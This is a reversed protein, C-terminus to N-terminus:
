APTPLLEEPERDRERPEAEGAVDVQNRVLLHLVRDPRPLGLQGALAGRGLCAVASRSLSLVVSSFYVLASLSFDSASAFRLAVESASASASM